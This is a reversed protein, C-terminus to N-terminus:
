LDDAARHGRLWGAGDPRLVARHCVAGMQGRRGGGPTKGDRLAPSDAHGVPVLGPQQQIGTEPQRGLYWQVHTKEPDYNSPVQIIRGRIHYNVTMQQGGFQEADVQLGVIATNPYCQKVDIIETYSSWLTRNQLQDTTSDATERVMRINFPRPPLNDLIVSALFQSTTKGNITVDKETVWNGNRQLQILLRVSPRIVTM